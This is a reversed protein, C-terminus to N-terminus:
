PLRGNALIAPLREKFAFYGKNAFPWFQSDWARRVQRLHLGQEALAPGLRALADAVPGVPATATVITKVRAARAAAALADVDLKELIDAKCKYQSAVRSATDAAAAKAFRRAADGWLLDPDALLTAAKLVCSTPFVTEPNLDEHTILLLAPTEADYPLLEPLPAAAEIAPETLAIAEKALGKPKFRGNTFRTINDATALYTKGVTQLGAVWRWSLTNSAADADVLHRLFFDAGLAWPLRLTFIWISAFWMRAHNHLYGTEVLERAWDDFGDIGTTGNEAATLAATDAFTDRQRDREEEFRSWVAPRMELWGKWYTRWFVEQLFKEAADSHHRAMVGAVIDRETVLRHRVYPSLRSVAGPHDPGHDMNRGSAYASGAHPLFETLRTLGDRRTAAFTSPVIM